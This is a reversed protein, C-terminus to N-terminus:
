RAGLLATLHRVLEREESALFLSGLLGLGFVVAWMTPILLLVGWEGDWAAIAGGGVSLLVLPVLPPKALAAPRLTLQLQSGGGPTPVVHGRAVAHLNRTLGTSASTRLVVRMGDVRGLLPGLGRPAGLTGDLLPADKGALARSLRALVEDPPLPVDLQVARRLLPM